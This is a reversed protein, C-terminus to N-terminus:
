SAELCLPKIVSIKRILSIQMEALTHIISKMSTSSHLLLINLQITFYHSLLVSDSKTSQNAPASYRGAVPGTSKADLSQSAKARIFISYATRPTLGDFILSGGAFLAMYYRFQYLVNIPILLYISSTVSFRFLYLSTVLVWIPNANTRRAQAPLSDLLLAAARPWASACM